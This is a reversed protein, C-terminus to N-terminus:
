KSDLQCLLQQSQAKMLLFSFDASGAPAWSIQASGDSQREVQAALAAAAHCNMCSAKDVPIYTEMVPNTLTAPLPQPPGAAGPDPPWQTGILRYYQWVSGAAQLRQQLQQNLPEIAPLSAVVPVVQTRSIGARVTVTNPPCSQCTPDYFSPKLTKGEQAYHSVAAPDVGTNDVQAFTSWVWKAASFTRHAIHMGVLGVQKQQWHGTQDLLCVTEVYFREAIDQAPDIIKWALKLEIVGEEAPDTNKHQGSNDWYKGTPLYLTEQNQYFSAQGDLNYLDESRFYDYEPQNLLIEYYVLNGNQDWLKKADAQTATDLLNARNTSAVDLNRLQRRNAPCSDAASTNAENWPGPDLGAQRLLITSPQWTSWTPAGPDTFDSQPAGQGDVPWSLAIFSQWSLIDFLRQRVENDQNNLLFLNDVDHPIDAALPGHPFDPFDPNGDPLGVANAAYPTATAGAPPQPGPTATPAAAVQNTAQRGCGTMLLLALIFAGIRCHHHFFM